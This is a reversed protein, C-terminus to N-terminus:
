RLMSSKERSRRRLRATAQFSLVWRLLSLCPMVLVLGHIKCHSPARPLRAHRNTYSHSGRGLKRNINLSMVFTGKLEVLVTSSTSWSSVSMTGSFVAGDEKRVAMFGNKLRYGFVMSGQDPQHVGDKTSDLQSIFSAHSQNLLATVRDVDSSGSSGDTCLTGSASLDPESNRRGPHPMEVSVLKKVSSRSPLSLIVIPFNSNETFEREGDPNRFQSCRRIYANWARAHKISSLQQCSTDGSVWFSSCKMM